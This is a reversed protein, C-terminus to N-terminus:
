QCVLLGMNRPPSQYASIEDTDTSWSKETGRLEQETYRNTEKVILSVLDSDFFLSFLGLPDQPLQMKPGARETCPAVVVLTAENSWETNFLKNNGVQIQLLM